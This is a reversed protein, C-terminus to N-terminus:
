SKRVGERLLSGREGKADRLSPILTQSTNQTLGVM